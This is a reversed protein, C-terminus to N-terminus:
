AEPEEVLEMQNGKTVFRGARQQKARAFFEADARTRFLAIDMPNTGGNVMFSYDRNGSEIVFYRSFSM